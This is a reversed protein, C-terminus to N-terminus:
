TVSLSKYIWKTLCLSQNGTKVLVEVEPKSHNIVFDM